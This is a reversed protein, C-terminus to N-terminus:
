SPECSLHIGCKSELKVVLMVEQLAVKSILSVQSALTWLMRVVTRWDMACIRQFVPMNLLMVVVSFIKHVRHRTCMLLMGAVIGVWLGNRLLKRAAKRAWECGNGFACGEIDDDAATAADM